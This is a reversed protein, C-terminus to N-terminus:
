HDGRAHGRCSRAATRRNWTHPRRRRQHSPAPHRRSRPQRGLTGALSGQGNGGLTGMGSGMGTGLTGGLNGGLGGTAGGGLVQAQVLPAGCILAFAALSKLFNKNMSKEQNAGRGM